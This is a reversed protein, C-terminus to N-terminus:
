RAIRSHSDTPQKPHEGRVLVGVGTWGWYIRHGTILGDQGPRAADLEAVPQERDVGEAQDVIAVM